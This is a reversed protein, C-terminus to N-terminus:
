RLNLRFGLGPLAGQYCGMDVKGNLTRPYKSDRRIDTASAMWDQVVGKGLAHSTTKLMYPDDGKMCFKAEVGTICDTCPYKLDGLSFPGNLSKILCNEFQLNMYGSRLDSATVGDATFNDSFICNVAEFKAGSDDTYGAHTYSVCNGAVTCSSLATVKNKPAAFLAAYQAHMNQGVILCNTFAGHSVVLSSVGDFWVDAEQVIANAGRAMVNGNTYGSIVTDVVPLGQPDIAGECLRCGYLVTGRVAGGKSLSVNNSIVCETAVGGCVGSGLTEVINNMVICRTLTSDYAGGGQTNKCVGTLANGDIMVDEATSKYIGGGYSYVTKAENDIINRNMTVRGRVVKAYAVGGGGTQVDKNQVVNNSIVCDTLVYGMPDSDDGYVGGGFISASNNAVLCRDLTCASTGGGSKGAVNGLVTCDSLSANIVAGGNATAVNNSFVCGVASGGAMAGGNKAYNGIFVCNTFSNGGYAAGGDLAAVNNEFRCREIWPTAGYVAGGSGRVANGVFQCDMWHGGTVIGSAASCCTVVVNSYVSNKNVNGFVGNASYNCNSITLDRMVGCYSYVFQRSTDCDATEYCLVVDRPDGTEGRVTFYSLGLHAGSDILQKESLNYYKVSLDDVAYVGKKLIITDSSSHNLNMSELAAKFEDVTAVVVTENQGFSAHVSLAVALLSVFAVFGSSRIRMGEEELVKDSTVCKLIHAVLRFTWDGMRPVVFDAAIHHISHAMFGRGNSEMAHKRRASDSVAAVFATHVAVPSEAARSASSTPVDKSMVPLTENMAPGSLFRKMRSSPLPTVGMTIRRASISLTEMAMPSRMCTVPRVSNRLPLFTHGIHWASVRRSGPSAGIGIGISM